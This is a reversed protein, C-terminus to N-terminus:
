HKNNIKRFCERNEPESNLVGIQEDPVELLQGVRTVFVEMEKRPVILYRRPPVQPDDVFYHVCNPRVDRELASSYKIVEKLRLVIEREFQAVALVDALAAKHHNRFVIETVAEVRFSSEIEGSLVNRSNAKGRSIKGFVNKKEPIEVPLKWDLPSINM